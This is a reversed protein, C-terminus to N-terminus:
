ITQTVLKTNLYAEVAEIGGQLDYIQDELDTMRSDLDNALDLADEADPGARGVPGQEGRPGQEGVPGEDGQEGKEAYASPFWYQPDASIWVLWGALFLTVVVNGILLYKFLDEKNQPM